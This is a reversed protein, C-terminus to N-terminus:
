NSIYDEFPNILYALTWLGYSLTALGNDLLGRTLM